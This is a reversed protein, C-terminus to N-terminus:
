RMLNEGTPHKLNAMFPMMEALWLVSSKNINAVLRVHVKQFSNRIKVHITCSFLSSWMFHFLLSSIAGCLAARRVIGTLKLGKDAWISFKM